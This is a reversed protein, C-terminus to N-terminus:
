QGDSQRDHQGGKLGCVDYVINFVKDVIFQFDKLQDDTRARAQTNSPSGYKCILKMKMMYNVFPLVKNQFDSRSISIDPCRQNMEKIFDSMAQNLYVIQASYIDNTTRDGLQQKAEKLILARDEESLDSLRVSM